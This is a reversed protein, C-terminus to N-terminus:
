RTLAGGDVPLNIGTIWHAADSALFLCANAVDEPRGLRGLPTTKEWRTVFEPDDVEIGLRWILGPSVCNVRIAHKGLERAAIRTHMVVGAKATNYHSHGPATLQSEISAINIIVGGQGQAVMQRAAAQTCLFVSRLNGDIVRDWEDGTMQLLPTSPYVGANNIWIDIHGFQATVRAILASVQPADGVDAQFVGAQRGLSRIGAATQEAAAQSTRYHVAVCAGAEAFRLAIGRGIGKGSGTVVVVRDTFGFPNQISAPNM